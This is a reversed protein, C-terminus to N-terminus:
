NCTREQHSRGYPAFEFGSLQMSVHEYLDAAETTNRLHLYSAVVLKSAEFGSTLLASLHKIGVEEIVIGPAFPVTALPSGLIRVKPM